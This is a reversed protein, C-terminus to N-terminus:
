LLMVMGLSLTFSCFCLFMVNKVLHDVGTGEAGLLSQALSKM